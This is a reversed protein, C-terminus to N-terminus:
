GEALLRNKELEFEADDLEGARHRETLAQLRDLVDADARTMGDGFGPMSPFGGPFGGGTESSM